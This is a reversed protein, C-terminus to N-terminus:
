IMDADQDTMDYAPMTMVIMLIRRMVKIFTHTIVIVMVIMVTEMTPVTYIIFHGSRALVRLECFQVSPHKHHQKFVLSDCM